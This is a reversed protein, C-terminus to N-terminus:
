RTRSVRWRIFAATSWHYITRVNCTPFFPFRRDEWHWLDACLEVKTTSRDLDLSCSVTGARASRAELLAEHVRWTLLPGIRESV